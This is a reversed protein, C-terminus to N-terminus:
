RRRTLVRECALRFRLSRKMSWRIHPFRALLNLRDAIVEYGPSLYIQQGSDNAKLIESALEEPGQIPIDSLVLFSSFRLLAQGLRTNLTGIMATKTLGPRAITLGLAPFRAKIRKGIDELALNSRKYNEFGPFYDISAAISSIVILSELANNQALHDLLAGAIERSKIRLMRDIDHRGGQDDIFTGASYVVTRIDGTRFDNDELIFRVSSIQSLDIVKSKVDVSFRKLIGSASQLKTKNSGVIVLNYGQSALREAFALGIGSSGGFVVATTAKLHTPLIISLVLLTIARLM